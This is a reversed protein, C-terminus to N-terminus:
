NRLLLHGRYVEEVEDVKLQYYYVDDKLKIEGFVNSIGKFYTSADYSDVDYVKQGTRDYITFSVVSYREINKIKLYDHVGDGNPSVMNFVFIPFCSLADDDHIVEHTAELLCNGYYLTSTMTNAGVELSTFLTTLSYEQDILVASQNSTWRVSDLVGAYGLSLSISDYCTEEDIEIDSAQVGFITNCDVVNYYVSDTLLIRDCDDNIAMVEVKVDQNISVSLSTDSTMLLTDNILGTISVVYKVAEDPNTFNLVLSDGEDLQDSTIDISYSVGLGAIGCYTTIDFTESLILNCGSSTDRAIFSFTEDASLVQSFTIEGGDFTDSDIITGGMDFDYAVGAQPNSLTFFITDNILVSDASAVITFGGGVDVLPCNTVVDFTDSLYLNCNSLTDTARFTFMADETLVQDFVIITGDSTDSDILFGNMRIDYVVGPYPNNLTLSVIEGADVTDSSATITFVGGVDILPCYTTILFTESLILSCLGSTDIAEFTFNTNTAIISEFTFDSGDSIMSDVALGDANLVYKVGAQPSTMEFFVTDNIAVSDELAVITFSGGVDSLGCTINVWVQQVISLECGTITDRAILDFSANETIVQSFVVNSADSTDSSLVSGQDQLEYVVGDQTNSLTFVVSENVDVTDSPISVTFDQLPCSVYVQEAGSLESSCAYGTDYASVTFSSNETIMQNFVLNSGGSTDSAVAVGNNNLTYVVGAEPNELTITIVSGAVVTDASSTMVFPGGFDNVPCDESGLVISDSLTRTCGYTANEAVVRYVRRFSSLTDYYNHPGNGNFMAIVGENKLLYYNYGSPGDTITLTIITDGNLPTLAYQFEFSPVEGFDVIPCSYVDFSKQLDLSCGELINRARFSYTAHQNVIHSLVIDSGLSEVSDVQVGDALLYYVVNLQPNSVYFFVTSDEPVTDQSIGIDFGGEFEFIPCGKIVEISDAFIVQCLSFTDTLQLAYDTSVDFIDELVFNSTVAQLSDKTEAEDLLEFIVGTQAGTIEFLMTDGPLVNFGNFSFNLTNSTDVPCNVNLTISGQACLPTPSSLDCVEYTLVETGHWVQDLNLTFTTDGNNSLSGNTLGTINLTSLDLNNEVDSIKDSLDIIYGQTASNLNITFDTVDPADEVSQVFVILTDQSCNGLVDCISYIVTDVGNSDSMPTYRIRFNSLKVVTGIVGNQVITFSSPDFSFTATDNLSVQIITASNDENIYLTDANTIVSDTCAIGGQHVDGLFTWNDQSIVSDRDIFGLCYVLDHVGITLNSNLNQAELSSLFADYNTVSLGSYSLASDASLVQGLDWDSIDQDFSHADKLVGSINQLYSSWSWSSIDQNFSTAGNFMNTVNTVQSLNWSALSENFLDCGMFMGELSQVDLLSRDPQDSANYVMNACGTFMNTVAQWENNGWAELSVLKLSDGGWAGGHSYLPFGLNGASTIRVEYEGVVGFDITIQSGIHGVITGNNLPNGVEEWYVDYGVGNAATAPIMVETNGTAGLNDTKWRTIFPLEQPECNYYVFIPTRDCVDSPTSSPAVWFTDVISGEAYGSLDPYSQEYVNGTFISSGGTMNEYWHYPDLVGAVRLRALTNGNADCVADDFVEPDNAKNVIITDSLTGCTTEFDVVYTGGNNVLVTDRNAWETIEIGDRYWTYEGTSIQNESINVTAYSPNCLNLEDGQVLKPLSVDFTDLTYCASSGGQTLLIYRGDADIQLISDQGGSIKNGVALEERYWQYAYGIGSVTPSAIIEFGLECTDLQHSTNFAVDFGSCLSPTLTPLGSSIRNSTCSNTIYRVDFNGNNDTDDPDNLAQVGQNNIYYVRGDNARQIAFVGFPHSGSAIFSTAGTVLSYGMLNYNGTQSRSYFLYDGNPSYELGYFTYSVGLNISEFVSKIEGSQADFERVEIDIGKGYAFSTGDPSFKMQSANVLNGQASIAQVRDIGSSSVDYLFLSDDLSNNYGMIMWYGTGDLKPTVAMKESSQGLASTFGELLTNATLSEIDGNGGDASLDLISYNPSYNVGGTNGAGSCVVYYKNPQGPVKLFVNGAIASPDSHLVEGNNFYDLKGNPGWIATGDFYWGADCTGEVMIFSSGESADLTDILCEVTPFVGLNIDSGQFSMSVGGGAGFVWEECVQPLQAMATFACLLILINLIRKM